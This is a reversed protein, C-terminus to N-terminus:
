VLDTSAMDDLDSSGVTEHIRRGLALLCLLIGFGTVMLMVILTQPLPDIHLLTDTLPVDPAAYPEVPTRDLVQDSEIVPTSGRQLGGITFIFLTVGYSLLILGALLQLLHRRLMLYIAGAFLMGIMVALFVIM